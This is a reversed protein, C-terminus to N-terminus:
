RGRINEAQLALSCEECIFSDGSPRFGYQEIKEKVRELSVEHVIMEEGCEGQCFFRWSGPAIQTIKKRQEEYGEPHPM